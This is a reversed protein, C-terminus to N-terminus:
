GRDQDQNAQTSSLEWSRPLFYIERLRRFVARPSMRLKLAIQVQTNGEATLILVSRSLESLTDLQREMDVVFVRAAEPGGQIRIAPNQKCCLYIEVFMPDLEATM